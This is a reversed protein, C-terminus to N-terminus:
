VDSMFEKIGCVPMVTEKNLKDSRIIRFFTPVLSKTYFIHSPCEDRFSCFNLFPIQRESSIVIKCYKNM